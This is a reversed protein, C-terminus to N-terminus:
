EQNKNPHVRPYLGLLNRPIYGEKDNVRAWWWEREWEDGKRLVILKDGEKFNLEDPNHAEYDFVAFVAGNNMIGLKEQVSYLYESCGDFGEEDEECKEAATEHDSLTTAFICAGHEVLFRVMAVNNCSAACHLPTWGDSDQANVDCGFKVLFTVIEFHGACIANHLATIGEDNAASPDRVQGATRMVLELEGELSADLLLALPDFSVRRSLPQKEGSGKLNGKKARRAVGDNVPSTDSVDSDETIASRDTQDEGPSQSGSGSVLDAPPTENEPFLFEPPMEIRRSTRVGTTAEDSDDSATGRQKNYQNANEEDGSRSQSDENQNRRDDSEDKLTLARLRPLDSVSQKKITLPRAKIVLDTTRKAAPDDPPPDTTPLPPPEDTLLKNALSNSTPQPQARLVTLGTEPLEATTVEVSNHSQRPPPPPTPKVPMAPKPPLAPKSTESEEKVSVQSQQSSNVTQPQVPHIKTSSTQYINSLHPLPTPSVTNVPKQLVPIQIDSILPTPPLALRTSVNSQTLPLSGAPLSTPVQSSSASSSTALSSTSSTTSSTGGVPQGRALLTSGGFVRPGLHSSYSSTSSTPSSSKQNALALAHGKSAASHIPISHAVHQQNVNNNLLNLNNSNNNNNNSKSVELNQTFNENGEASARKNMLAKATLPQSQHQPPMNGTFKTNYPLTQYKPDSKSPGFFQDDQQGVHLERPDKTQKTEQVYHHVAPATLSQKRPGMMEDQSPVSFGRINQDSKIIENQKSFEHETPSPYSTCTPVHHYPEVAAINGSPVSRMMQKGGSTQYLGGQQQMGPLPVRNPHHAAKSSSAAQNIQNALQQNLLRKRHLREQLEAIRKDISAMELQRQCLVERQENLRLSQQENLKNRYMLERRLRELEQSAPAAPPQNQRGRRVDELQRTLEEVKAVALTLEKEKENFLARISDLDSTLTHNNSKNHDLQGRLARLKTLKLEQAEVRDRLRRLRDTEHAVQAHRVEHEKLYRLRQEKVALLQRQNAMEEQQRVAMAELETVTLEVGGSRVSENQLDAEKMGNRPRNGGRTFISYKLSFTIEDSSDWLDRLIDHPRESEHLARQGHGWSHVLTCHEEGPDRVCEIVDRCTTEPTLPVDVVGEEIVVKLILPVM